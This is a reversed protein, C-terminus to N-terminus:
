EDELEAIARDISRGLLAKGFECGPWKVYSRIETVLQARIERLSALSELRAKERVKSRVPLPGGDDVPRLDSSGYWCATGDDRRVLADSMAAGLPEWKEVVGTQGWFTRVRRGIM